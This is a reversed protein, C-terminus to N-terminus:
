SVRENIADDKYLSFDDTCFKEIFGADRTWDLLIWFGRVAVVKRALDGVATRLLISARNCSYFNNKWFFLLVAERNLSQVDWAIEKYPNVNWTM